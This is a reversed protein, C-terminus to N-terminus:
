VYYNIQQKNVSRTLVIDLAIRGQIIRTSDSLLPLILFFKSPIVTAYNLDLGSMHRSCM